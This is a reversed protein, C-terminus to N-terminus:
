RKLEFLHKATKGHFVEDENGTEHAIPGHPFMLAVVKLIDSGDSDSIM